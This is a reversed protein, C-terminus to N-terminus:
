FLTSPEASSQQFYFPEILDSAFDFIARPGPQGIWSINEGADSGRAAANWVAVLWPVFAAVDILLMVLVHRIKVRQFLFILTIESLIVLWGFYHTYVLAVNVLTLVRINKGRNYFRLFLWISLISLLQLLGYMRVEQAYKILTGNVSFLFLAAVLTWIKLKLERCLLYFPFLTAAAISFAFLRAYFLGDGFALIWLKLLLYFLPPHVLDLAVFGFLERLPLEAAQVSFIEDFWLCSNTLGWFRVWLYFLCVAATSFAQIKTAREM